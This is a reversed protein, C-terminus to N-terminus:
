AHLRRLLARLRDLSHQPPEGDTAQLSDRYWGALMSLEFVHVHGAEVACGGFRAHAELLRDMGRDIQFPRRVGRTVVALDYAPDGRRAYEWDVLGPPAGPALLINQGLLDGHLLVSPVAPPLHDRAWALGARAEPADLNEFVLLAEEAHATRTEHGPLLGALAGVDLSHVAAALQGVVEWPRVFPQRGARPDLEVGPLYQRVLALRGEDDPWVGLVRPVRLPLSLEALRHLLRAEREARESVREDAGPTPLLVAYPGSLAVPDPSVEVDAAFVDRSLGQGVRAVRGIEIRAGPIRSALAIRLIAKARAWRAGHSERELSAEMESRPPGYPFRAATHGVIWLSDHGYDYWDGEPLLPEDLRDSRRQKKM